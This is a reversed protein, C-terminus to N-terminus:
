TKDFLFLGAKGNFSMLRTLSSIWKESVVDAFKIRSERNLIVERDTQRDVM